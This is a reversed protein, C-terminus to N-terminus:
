PTRRAPGPLCSLACPRSRCARRCANQGFLDAKRRFVDDEIRVDKRDRGADLFMVAVADGEDIRRAFDTGGAGARMNGTADRVKRKRETAVLRYALGHVRDKQEVGDGRAHVHADDVGALERNVLLDVRFQALGAFVDHQRAARIRRLSQKGYGLSVAVLGALDTLLIDSPAVRGDRLPQLM